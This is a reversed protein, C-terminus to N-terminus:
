IYYFLSLFSCSIVNYFYSGRDYLLFFGVSNGCENFQRKGFIQGIRGGRYEGSFRFYM